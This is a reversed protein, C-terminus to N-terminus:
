LMPRSIRSRWVRLWLPVAMVYGWPVIGPVIRILVLPVLLWVLWFVVSLVAMRRATRAKAEAGRGEEMATLDGRRVSTEESSRAAILAATALLSGIASRIVRGVLAM